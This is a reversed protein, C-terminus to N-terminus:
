SADERRERSFWARIKTRARPTVAVNLWDPPAPGNSRRPSCTSRTARRSSPTWRWGATSRRESAATGWRPTSPTPRLRHAHRGAAPHGRGGQAHLRLGGGARPGPAPRGHVRSPDSADEQSSSSGGLTWTTARSRRSRTRGTLPSGGSPGLTCRPPASQVELAQGAAGGGHTCRSISTSSPSPSTTRSGSTWRCGSASPAWRGTATRSTMWWSASGSSISSTTSTRTGTSWRRTSAGSNSPRGEVVADIDHAALRSRVEELVQTLYVERRRGSTSWRTSRRALALYLAAFSLDELEQKM